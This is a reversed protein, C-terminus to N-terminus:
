ESVWRDGSREVYYEEALGHSLHLVSQCDTIRCVM